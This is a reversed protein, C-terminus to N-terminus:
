VSVYLLVCCLVPVVCYWVVCSLAVCCLVVGKGYPEAATAIAKVHSCLYLQINYIHVFRSSGKRVDKVSVKKVFVKVFRLPRRPSRATGRSLPGHPVLRECIHEYLLGHLHEYLHEFLHGYVHELCM